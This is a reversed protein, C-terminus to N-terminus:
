PSPRSYSKGFWEAVLIILIKTVLLCWVGYLSDDIMKEETDQQSRFHEIWYDHRCFSKEM